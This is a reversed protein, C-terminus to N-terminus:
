VPITVDTKGAKLANIYALCLDRSRFTGYLAREKEEVIPFTSYVFRVDDRGTVGYLLFFLADLKARLQLRRGEDWPFPTRVDGSDDLYDMERAFPAMDHSTYTLELVTESVIERATKKGFQVAEMDNPPVVPFQEVVFWNLNQGQIKQRALFDFPTSNFNALLAAAHKTSHGQIVLQPLSNGAGSRPILAAIVSRVNTPATVHKFVFLFSESGLGTESEPVWYRPSPVWGPDRHQNLSTRVPQAPRHRNEPNVVISAARHDYAQVMKGEYLPMWEGTPSDYRNNGVSWAGEAEELETRTRFQRSDNTMDFMRRYAVPWAKVVNGGSRDVLVPMREYISTTLNAARRTRLVPATGTNPNVRAFQNAAMPFWRDPDRVEEVSHLFFACRAPRELPQEGPIAQFAVDPKSKSAIFACFKFRSDVAPFFPPQDYGLRRNEFDFLARLRGETSVSKFFDAATLDGAIGSPTLLGVLGDRKLLSMSREVFLSYLNIDGRGLLPFDGGRRAMRMAASARDSAFAYDEALPDGNRELDAIMRKRDAAKGSMAIEPRRSSFWEVQQLKMRDWPPNGVIADFGGQPEESEWDTWVGPFAVQWNLFREEQVLRSAEDVLEALKKSEPLGQPVQLRGMAIDIPDGLSGAYYAKLAAEGERSRINLWDFAHVLSLFALLPATREEVGAYIESSRNAEAIESDSLEEILHLAEQARVARKIPENLVLQGGREKAKDIGKKVWSGFLSNGCVLHHNLFNLPAGVTFTHLWLAVKALEVAMPNKDVGYVCRKLVVRRVIHRDDLRAPDIKWGGEKANAAITKRIDHIRKTLPSVYGDIAAEAEGIAAIVRETLYDVVRVLFHGSGMAPDCVKMELISEAPDLRKLDDIALPGSRTGVRAKTVARDFADLRTRVLPGLTEDVILGVLDDSTYYSGSAKRAFINPRAEILPGNRVFEHEILREYISGLQQVSLDSYNIYQREAGPPHQFSLADIVDALVADCLQVKSLLPVRQRDFLGGDYPPLGLSRDGVDILRSLDDIYNWYRTSVNSFVDGEDKRRGIDVRVQFRIAWHEYRDDTIPLLGRDEAYHIFLLRYLLVLTAERIEGLPADPAAEAIAGALGPFVTDFVLDSLDSAVRAEFYRSEDIARQHFTRPDAGTPIFAKRRLVLAIVRLCHRRVDDTIAFLGSGYESLGLLQRFDFEFYDESVSRAGQYYLRWCAGNTLIGWRLRGTTLDEVRRLYRLMQTSPAAEEGPQGSHGDLPRLWRKSEVLVTGFEYRRWEEDCNNAQRKKEADAFLLGDPVDERGKASLNQQRLTDTWGFLALIPWILDDETQSENASGELPFADFISVLARELADLGQDDISQWEDCDSISETLFDRAFLTGRIIDGVNM